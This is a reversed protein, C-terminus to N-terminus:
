PVASCRHSACVPRYAIVAADVDVDVGVSMRQEMCRRASSGGAHYRPLASSVPSAFEAGARSVRSKTGTVSTGVTVRGAAVFTVCAVECGLEVRVPWGDVLM